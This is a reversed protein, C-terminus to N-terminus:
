PWSRLQSEVRQRLFSIIKKGVKFDDHIKELCLLLPLAADGADELVVVGFATPAVHHQHAAHGHLGHRM